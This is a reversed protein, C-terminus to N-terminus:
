GPQLPLQVGGSQEDARGVGEGGELELCAHLEFGTRESSIIM